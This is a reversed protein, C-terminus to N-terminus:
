FPRRPFATNSQFADPMTAPTISPTLNMKTPSYVGPRRPAILTKAAAFNNFRTDVRPGPPALIPYLPDVTGTKPNVKFSNNGPQILSGDPNQNAQLGFGQPMLSGDPNTGGTLGFTQKLSGDPNVGGELGIGHVATAAVASMAKMHDDFNFGDPVTAGAALANDLAADPPTVGASVLADLPDPPPM